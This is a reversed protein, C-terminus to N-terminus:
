GGVEETSENEVAMRTIQLEVRCRAKGDIMHKSVSTVEAFARLDIMDGVDCNDDLNLKELEDECLTLTLGYPYDAVMAATPGGLMESVEEVKEAPTRRMDVMGTQWAM